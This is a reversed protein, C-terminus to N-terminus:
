KIPKRVHRRPWPWRRDFIIQEKDMNRSIHTAIIEGLQEVMVRRRKSDEVEKIVADIKAIHIRADSSITTIPLLILIGILEGLIFLYPQISHQSLLAFLGAALFFAQAMLNAGGMVTVQVLDREATKADQRVPASASPPLQDLTGQLDPASWADSIAVINALAIIPAATAEALWFSEPFAM